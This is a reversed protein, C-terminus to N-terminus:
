NSNYFLQKSVTVCSTELVPFAAGSPAHLKALQSVAEVGLVDPFPHGYREKALNM